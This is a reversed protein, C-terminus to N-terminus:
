LQEKGISVINEFISFNLVAIMKVIDEILVSAEWTMTFNIKSNM